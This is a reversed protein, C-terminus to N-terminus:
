KRPLQISFLCGTGERDSVTVSGGHLEVFYRVLYLGLGSGRVGQNLAEDGRYFKQFIRDHDDPPVGPGSNFVDVQIWSTSESTTIEVNGSPPTYKVANELLNAISQGILDGDMRVPFLPELKTLITVNKELATARHADVLKEIMSNVDRNEMGLQFEASEVRTLTLIRSVFTHLDETSRFIKELESRLKKPDNDRSSLLTEVVGQIRAIPTKLNHSVLSMFNDKLTEVESLLRAEEQYRWRGKYEVILRYPVLFYYAIAIAFIPKSLDLYVFHNLAILGALLLGALILIVALIGMLPATSFLAITTLISVAVTLFFVVQRPPVQISRERLVSDIANADLEVAVEAVSGRKPFFPAPGFHAHGKTPPPAVLLIADTFRKKALPDHLATQIDISPFTGPPGAINILHWRDSALKSVKEPALLAVLSADFSGPHAHPGESIEMSTEISEPSPALQPIIMEASRHSFQHPRILPYPLDNIHLIREEVDELDFHLVVARPKQDKLHTLFEHLVPLWQIEKPDPLESDPFTVIMINPSPPQVGRLRMQVNYFANQFPLDVWSILLGVTLGFLLALIWRRM